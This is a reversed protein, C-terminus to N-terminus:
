GNVCDSDTGTQEVTNSTDGDIGVWPSSWSSEGIGCAATPQSWSGVVRTAGTGDVAYGSWNTSTTATRKHKPPHVFVRAQGASAGLLVVATAGMVAVSGRRWRLM